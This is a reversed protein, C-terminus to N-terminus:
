GTPPASRDALVDYHVGDGIRRLAFGQADLRAAIADASVWREDCEYFIQRIDRARQSKLIEGIVVEEHGEVDIKVFIPVGDQFPFRDLCAHDTLTITETVEGDLPNNRAISAQGSHHGVIKIEATTNADSLAMRMVTVKQAVHNLRLNTELLDATRAVPEFAVVSICHPNRAALMSYLGQNAGVDILHFPHDIQKLLDAYFFGYSGIVYFRFTGDGYNAALKLGHVTRVHRAGVWRALKLRARDYVGRVGYKRIIGPIRILDNM